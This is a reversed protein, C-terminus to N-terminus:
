AKRGGHRSAPAAAWRDRCVLCRRQKAFRNNNARTNSHGCALLEVITNTAHFVAQSTITVLPARGKAKGTPGKRGGRNHPIREPRNNLKVTAIGILYDAQRHSKMHCSRCLWVIEDPKQYDPHHSDKPPKKGCKMCLAPKTFWGHKKRGNVLGNARIREAETSEPVIHPSLQRARRIGKQGRCTKCLKQNRQPRRLTDASVEYTDGCAECTVHGRGTQLGSHLGTPVPKASIEDYLTEM